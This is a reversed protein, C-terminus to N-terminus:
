CHRHFFRVTDAEAENRRELNESDERLSGPGGHTWRASFCDEAVICIVLSIDMRGAEKPM